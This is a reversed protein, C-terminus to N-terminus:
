EQREDEHEDQINEVRGILRRLDNIISDLMLATGMGAEERADELSDLADSLHSLITM